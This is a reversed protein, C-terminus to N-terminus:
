PPVPRSGRGATGAQLAVSALLEELVVPDVPKVLHGDFSTEATRQRDEPQGYGTMAVVVAGAM